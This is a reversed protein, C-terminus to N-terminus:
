ILYTVKKGEFQITQTTTPLEQNGKNSRDNRISLQQINLKM